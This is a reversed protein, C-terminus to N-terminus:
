EQNVADSFQGCKPSTEQVRRLLLRRGRFMCDFVIFWFIKASVPSRDERACFIMMGFL